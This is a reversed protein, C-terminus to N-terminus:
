FIAEGGWGVGWTEQPELVILVHGSPLDNEFQLNYNLISFCRNQRVDLAAFIPEPWAPNISGGPEPSVLSAASTSAQPASGPSTM